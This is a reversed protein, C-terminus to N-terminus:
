VFICGTDSPVEYVKIDKIWYYAGDEGEHDNGIVLKQNDLKYLNCKEVNFSFFGVGYM